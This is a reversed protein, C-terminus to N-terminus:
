KVFAMVVISGTDTENIISFLGAEAAVVFTEAYNFIQRYGNEFELIIYSGEVLNMVLAKDNTDLKVKSKLYLRHVDYLQEPHTPLHYIEYGEASDLLVPKSILQEQVYPGKRDFRLNEMGREINLPRPKGDLDPRLWDYMKFTYIYPTSSIELVMNDKGSGHITGPPILFFDHKSVTIKRVYKEIELSEANTFSDDLARKFAKPDIDENFGLYVVSGPKCDIIYYCEEQTISENFHKKIYELDPHCQVSLDGGDFTDLFDFRIPFEVGYTKWADGLVARAEQFMLFDFSIELLLCSSEFVIGNEPVIMEFSWAYNPVDSNLGDINERIWNGGWVGPEFWPRVRFCSRSMAHLGQRIHQAFAWNVEGSRQTDAIIEIEPLIKQKHRNLVIWDVFYFRKYMSKIDAPSKVGLNCISGARARFQLENKPMDFYMLLGKKGALYAGTGYIINVDFDPDLDIQKLKQIDFFDILDLTTCSGFVPDDGGTFPATLDDIQAETKLALDINRWCVSIGKEIFIVQFIQRLEEFFVGVYGDLIVIKHKLMEDALSEFGSCILGDHLRFAPYIDYKGQQMIPKREPLLYQKTNRLQKM